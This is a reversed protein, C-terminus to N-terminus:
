LPFFKKIPLIDESTSSEITIMRHQHDYAVVNKKRLTQKISRVTLATQFGEGDGLGCMESFDDIMDIEIASSTKSPPPSNNELLICTDEDEEDDDESKKHLDNNPDSYKHTGDAQLVLVEDNTMIVPINRRKESFLTLM